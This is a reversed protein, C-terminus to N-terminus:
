WWLHWHVLKLLDYMKNKTKDVKICEESVFYNMDLLYDTIRILEDIIELQTYEKGKYNFKYFELDVIKIAEKRYVKLHENLWKVLEYDLNWCEESIKKNKSKFLM